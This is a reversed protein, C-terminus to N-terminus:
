MHGRPAPQFIANETCDPYTGLKDIQVFPCRAGVVRGFALFGNFHTNLFNIDGSKNLMVHYNRLGRLVALWDQIFM